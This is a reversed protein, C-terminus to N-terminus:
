RHQRQCQLDHGDNHVQKSSCRSIALENSETSNHNNRELIKPRGTGTALVKMALETGVRDRKVYPVVGELPRRGHFAEQSLGDLIVVSKDQNKGGCQIPGGRLDM